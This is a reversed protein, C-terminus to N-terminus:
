DAWENRLDQVRVRGYPIWVVAAALYAWWPVGAFWMVGGVFAPEAVIRCAKLYVRFHDRTSPPQYDAM